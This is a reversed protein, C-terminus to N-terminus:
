TTPSFAISFTWTRTTRARTTSTASRCSSSRRCASAISRSHSRDSAVPRPGLIEVGLDKLPAIWAEFIPKVAANGQMWVGRIKGTGNDLNFYASTKALEPKPKGRTASISPRRLDRSGLLRREEGGWLGIRITRRPKLGTAKLIRLVEM